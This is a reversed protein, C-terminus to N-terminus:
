RFTGAAARGRSGDIRSGALAPWQRCGCEASRGTRAYPDRRESPLVGCFRDAVHKTFELYHVIHGLDLEEVCPHFGIRQRRCGNRKPMRQHKNRIPASPSRREIDGIGQQFQMGSHGSRGQIPLTFFQLSCPTDSKLRAATTGAAGVPQDRQFSTNHGSNFCLCTRCRRNHARRFCLNRCLSHRSVINHARNHKLM